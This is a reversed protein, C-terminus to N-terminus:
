FNLVATNLKVIGANMYLAFLLWLLYPYQLNGAMKNIDKFRNIMSIVTILLLLMVILAFLFYASYFFLYTWVMQLFLQGLFLMSAKQVATDDGQRLVLYFSIVMLAYLVSWALPFMKDPPMLPPLVLSHYFVKLGFGVFYACIAATIAVAFFSYLFKILNEM